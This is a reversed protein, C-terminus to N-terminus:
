DPLVRRVEREGILVARVEMQSVCEPGSGDHQDEEPAEASREAAAVERLQSILDFPEAVRSGL